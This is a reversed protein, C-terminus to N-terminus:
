VGWVDRAFRRATPSSWHYSELDPATISVFFDPDDSLALFREVNTAISILSEVHEECDDVDFTRTAGPSVYLVKARTGEGLCRAYFSVQRAHSAKPEYPIRGTVKLDVVLDPFEFDIFGILNHRLGHPQLEVLRQASVLDGFAQLETYADSVLDALSTRYTSRRRDTSLATTRDFYREAIAVGRDLAIGDRLMSTIGAEVALGRVADISTVEKFPHPLVYDAVFRAQDAAFKTCSSNSLHSLIMTNREDKL